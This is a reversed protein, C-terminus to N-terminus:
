SSIIKDYYDNVAKQLDPNNNYFDEYPANVAFMEVVTMTWASDPEVGEKIKFDVNSKFLIIIKSMRSVATPTLGSVLGGRSNNNDNNSQPPPGPVKNDELINQEMGGVVFDIKELDAQKPNWSPISNTYKEIDEYKFNGFEVEADIKVLEVLSFFDYPWNYQLTSTSGFEDSTINSDGVETNVDPNRLVTRKFYNSPARQKVKFVMWQLKNPMDILTNGSEGGEGLLEKKLLPHTIAVESEEMSLGIEPPLNQWIDSLDQQTLTHSFEFIYMAVPKVDEISNNLFDFSPPFIYKEMKQLQNLVSRGIQLQPDGTTLSERNDGGSKYKQVLFPDISFYKKDSNEEIFPIAVVAEHVTKSSRLRGLKTSSGAFGLATSLDKLAGTEGRAKRWWNEEIPGVELFVGKDEDPIRGYQHWMGRPVSESGFQPISLTEGANSIHNFNLMPTEFKTQIVWRSDEDVGSDVVLSGVTGTDQGNEVSVKGIGKLNLSASLQVANKNIAGEHFSQPGQGGSSNIFSGTFHKAGYFTEDFRTFRYEAANQIESITMKDSSATLVIECWGEGHYYPPTYPFNFGQLSDKLVHFMEANTPIFVSENSRDFSHFFGENSAGIATDAYFNADSFSTMGLSPPGFASPRSYMTFNERVNASGSNVDQPPYYSEDKSGVHYVSGRGGDMSRRMKVRMGYVSGSVLTIDKQKKSAVATLQGNPLFFEPVTAFFNNAMKSYLEDGQGDWKASASLNGEPHPENSILPFGALHDKPEILAEFPIRKDFDGTFMYEGDHTHFDNLQPLISGTIIPYDVAIGSKITNFLVGPAFLPTMVLQRGYNFNNIQSGTANFLSINNKFSDYFRKALDFTRQAPYFGEYPLFKKVAKCRLSLVKGNTFDKHDANILEFKRLFDSNSYITYFKSESSNQADEAGGTVEFMDLEIATERSLYDEIQTSMRFEPVISFNKYKKRIEENYARYTDYFPKKSSTIYNGSDDKIQRTSGAEWAAGGQFLANITVSGTEPIKLGFPNSVSATNMLSIRRAYLPGPVMFSDYYISSTQVQIPTGELSSSLFSFQNTTSMLSGQGNRPISSSIWTTSATTRTLFDEAEDLPWTSQSLKNNLRIFSYNTKDLIKTREGRKHKYFSTFNPRELIENQFQNKMHPYVTERYQLFEWHTLPSAQNNLGGEAYLNYIARYQARQEDFTLNHLEDVQHNAFGITENEYSSIISFRDPNELDVNGDQDKHHRGVNFILPFSKQTIVPETFTYLSSFRDRVRNESDASLDRLPGPQTVFTMTNNARHHRTIPNESIRTQKWTSYGYPGNRHINLAALRDVTRPRQIFFGASETRFTGLNIPNTSQIGARVIAIDSSASGLSNTLNHEGAEKQKGAFLEVVTGAPDDGIALSPNYGLRWIDFQNDQVFSSSIDSFLPVGDNYLESVQQAVLEPNVFTVLPNNFISFAQIAGNLNFTPNPSPDNGLAIWNLAKPIGIIDAFDTDLTVIGTQPEGNFWLYVAESPSTAFYNHSVIVNFYEDEVLQQGLNWEVTLENSAASYTFIHDQVGVVGTNRTTLSLKFQSSAGEATSLGYIRHNSHVGRSTYKLWTSVTHGNSTGVDYDSDVNWSGSIMGMGATSSFKTFEISRDETNEIIIPDRTQLARTNGDVKDSIITNLGVHDVFYSM